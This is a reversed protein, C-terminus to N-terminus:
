DCNRRTHQSTGREGRGEGVEAFILGEKEGAWTLRWRRTKRVEVFSKVRGGALDGDGDSSLQDAVAWRGRCWRGRMM